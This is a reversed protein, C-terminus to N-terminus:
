AFYLINVIRPRSYFPFCVYGAGGLGYLAVRNYNRDELLDKLHAIIDGRGTFTDNRSFTVM